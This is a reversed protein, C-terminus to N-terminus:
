FEERFPFTAPCHEQLVDMSGACPQSFGESCDRDVNPPRNCNATMWGIKQKENDYVVMKDQMFIDGIVNLNKLGIQTGNLIGLCVNGQKTIILYAEPPIQMPVANNNAFRLVLPSFYSRVDSISKFRKAGKWCIPLTGDDKADKLPKGNLNKRITSLTIDYAQSNLYTYSSGSDFVVSLGKVGTAQAGFLLEAPGSSYYKEMPQSSMPSWVMGSSPILDDGFFLFGGGRSSMCHGVVSRTLGMNSLQSVISAKGNGLGLVGDLFSHSTSSPVFQDYGCGFAVRASLQSGNTFRLPFYDRILVGLSSGDDAYKVDYDCQENPNNCQLNASLRLSTCLPDNCRVIDKSPKYPPHRGKICNQCPADCQVWTLDSGTDIDLFYPKPPQGIDMSAYYYGDPYVNGYLPLVASTRFRNIPASPTQKKTNQPKNAASVCGQFAASLLMFFLVMLTVGGDGEGM